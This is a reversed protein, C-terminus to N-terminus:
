HSSPWPKGLAAPAVARTASFALVGLTMVYPLMQVLQSPVGGGSGQLSIQVSELLGFLLCGMWVRVPRWQGFVVAAVAIFGRGASMGATFQHQDASLYAGGLGCLAGCMLVAAWRTGRVSIGQSEAAAPHQGVARIRLGLPTNMLVQHMLPVLLLALLVLPTGMIGGVLPLEAVTRWATDEFGPTRPGNSASQYLAKLVFRGAGTALLNLGVAVMIHNAGAHICLVGHLAMVLLGAAMAALLGLWVNGTSLVTVAHALAGMLLVGELAINTIGARESLTGGLAALTYPTSIRFAGLIIALLEAM